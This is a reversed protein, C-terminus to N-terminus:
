LRLLYIDGHHTHFQQKPGGGGISINVKDDMKIVYKTGARTKGNAESRELNRKDLAWDFDTFFEGHHSDMSANVALPSQYFVRIDGHHTYYVSENSPNRTYNVEISGHHGKASATGGINRLSIGGHHNRALVPANIGDVTLDNRHTSVFLPINEPLELIVNFQYEVDYRSEERSGKRDWDWDSNYYGNGEEDLRFETRPHQMFWFVQGDETFSDFYIQEKAETLASSSASKLKRTVKLTATSGKIAKVEVSGNKNYLHFASIGALNTNFTFTDTAQQSVCSIVM